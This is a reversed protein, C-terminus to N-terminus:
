IVDTSLGENVSCLTYESTSNGTYFYAKNHDKAYEISRYDILEGFYIKHNKLRHGYIVMHADGDLNGAYRMFLSGTKSSKGYPDKWLYKNIDTASGKMVVYDINTYPVYLWGAIDGPEAVKQVDANNNSNDVTIIDSESDSESEYDEMKSILSVSSNNQNVPDDDKCGLKSFDIQRKFGDIVEPEEETVFEIVASDKMNEYAEENADAEEYLKKDSYARYGAYVGYSAGITLTAALCCIIAIREKKTTVSNFKDFM